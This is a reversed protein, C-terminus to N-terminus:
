KENRRRLLRVYAAAGLGCLALSGPEPVPAASIDLIGLTGSGINGVGIATANAITLTLLGASTSLYAIGSTGSIDFGTVASGAVGTLPGIGFLQGLNPSPTGDVGGQTALVNLSSSVDFLTTQPTGPFNRDYAVAVVGPSGPNIPTDTNFTGTGGATIRYNQGSNAVIRMAGSAPNFDIALKTINTAITVANVSSVAGTLPNITYVNATGSGPNYGLGVLAQDAPRFDIGVMSQGAALGSLGVTSLISGPTASDFTVLTGSTTLGTIVEARAGSAFSLALIALVSRTRHM